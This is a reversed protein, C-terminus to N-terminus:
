AGLLAAVADRQAPNLEARASASAHEVAVAVTAGAAVATRDSDSLVFVVPMAAAPAPPQATVRHGAIELHVAPADDGLATVRDALAAADPADVLLVAAVGGAPAALHLAAGAEAAAVAADAVRRARLSEEVAATLTAPEHFVIAFLGGVDIRRPGQAAGVADLSAAREAEYVAGLRPEGTDSM